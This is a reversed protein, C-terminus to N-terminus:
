LGGFGSEREDRPHLSRQARPTKQFNGSLPDVGQFIRLPGNEAFLAAAYNEESEAAPFIFFIGATRVPVFNARFRSKPAFDPQFIRLKERLESLCLRNLCRFFFLRSLWACRPSRPKFFARLLRCEPRISFRGAIALIKKLFKKM